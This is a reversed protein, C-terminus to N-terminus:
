RLKELIVTLTIPLASNIIYFNITAEFGNQEPQVDVVVSNLRVRPEFNTLTNTIQQQIYAATLADTNEFLLAAVGSGIEPHFPREFHNTLILTKVSRKIDDEANLPVIDGTVPHPTFNLDLDSYTRVNLPM